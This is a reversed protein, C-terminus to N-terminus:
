LAISRGMPLSGTTSNRSAQPQLSHLHDGELAPGVLFGRQDCGELRWLRSCLSLLSPPRPLLQLLSPPRPLLLLGRLLFYADGLLDGTDVNTLNSRGARHEHYLTLTVRHPPDVRQM